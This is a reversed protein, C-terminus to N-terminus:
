GHTRISNLYAFERAYARDAFEYIVSKSTQTVDFPLPRRLQWVFLPIYSVMVIALSIAKRGPTGRPILNIVVIVAAVIFAIEILRRTRRRRRYRVGCPTCAPPTALARRRLPLLWALPLTDTARAVLIADPTPANCVVCRDPYAPDHRRPLDIDHSLPM